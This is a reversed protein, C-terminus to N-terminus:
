GNMIGTGTTSEIGDADTVVLYTGVHENGRRQSGSGQQGAIRECQNLGVVAMNRHQPSVGTFHDQMQHM